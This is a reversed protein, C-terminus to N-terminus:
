QRGRRPQRSRGHVSSHLPRGQRLGARRVDVGRARHRHTRPGRARRPRGRALHRHGSRPLGRARAAQRHRGRARHAGRRHLLHGDDVGHGARRDRPRAGPHGTRASPPCSRPEHLPPDGAGGRADSFEDPDCRVGGKAVATSPRRRPCVEVDDLMALARVEDLTVDPSYRVGGKAPGRTLNHQVRHGTLVVVDGNDRRLPISVSVERRPQALGAHMGEGLALVGVAEALQSRAEDLVNDATQDYPTPVDVENM